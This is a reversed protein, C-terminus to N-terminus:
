YLASLKEPLPQGTTRCPECFNNAAIPHHQCLECEKLKARAEALKARQEQIEEIRKTLLEDQVELAKRVEHMFGARDQQPDRINLVERIRDLNLGLDQLSRIMNLRNLDCHRYYRFGGDSRAAPKMLGLEEYYRLTRLNTNALRAFEGIKLLESTQM